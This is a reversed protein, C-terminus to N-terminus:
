KSSMLFLRMEKGTVTVREAEKDKSGNGIVFHVNGYNKRSKGFNKM